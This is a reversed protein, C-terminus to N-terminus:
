MFTVGGRGIKEDSIKKANKEYRSFQTPAHCRDLARNHLDAFTAAASIGNM